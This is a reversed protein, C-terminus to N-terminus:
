TINEFVNRRFVMSPHIFPINWLFDNKTPYEPMKLVGWIGKENFVNAISGVFDINKNEDLFVIQKELRDIASIDDDDMRAIYLGSLAYALGNNKEYTIIKIRKDLKELDKLIELTNDTSGDNCIIFEWDIFTQQVISMVSRYLNDINKCNYVGM